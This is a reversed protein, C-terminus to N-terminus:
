HAAADPPVFGGLQEGSDADIFAWAEPLRGTQETWYLAILRTAEQREENGLANWQLGSLFAQRAALDVRRVLGGETLGAYARRVRAREAPSLHAPDPPPLASNHSGDLSDSVNAKPATDADPGVQTQILSHVIFYGILVAALILGLRRATSPQLM